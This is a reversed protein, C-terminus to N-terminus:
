CQLKILPHKSKAGGSASSAQLPQTSPLGSAGAVCESVDAAETTQCTGWAEAIFGELRAEPTSPFSLLGSAVSPAQVWQGISQDWYVVPSQVSTSRSQVDLRPSPLLPSWQSVLNGSTIPHDM